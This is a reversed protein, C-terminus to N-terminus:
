LKVSLAVGDGVDIVSTLLQEDGTVAELYERVHKVLMRRKAPVPREGNVWGYLLVDDALLVGGRPMLRKLTPLYKIYQAKASDLFIFDYEGCLAPLAEGADGLIQTVRASLGAAKFNREAEAFFGQDREITTLHAHTCTQLLCLGSVGVATGIELINKAGKAASATCLFNLTEDSSVPISRAFAGERVSMALDSIKLKNLGATRSIREPVSTDNHAYNFNEQGGHVAPPQKSDNM